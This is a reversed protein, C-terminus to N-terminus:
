KGMLRRINVAMHVGSSIKQGVGGRGQGALIQQLLAPTSFAQMMLAASALYASMSGYFLFRLSLSMLLVQIITTCVSKFLIQIYGKFIGKDSDVLGICAIPIGIRLVLMEFGRALLKIYFVLLVIFYIVLFIQTITSTSQANLLSTFDTIVSASGFGDLIGSALYVTADALVNYLYPFAIGAVVAQVTGTVLDMPSSEADGDRWLIYIQFGKWLFKLIILTVAVASIYLYVNNIISESLAGNSVAVSLTEIRMIYGTLDTLLGNVFNIIDNLLVNFFEYFLVDM